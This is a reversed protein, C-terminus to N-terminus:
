KAEENVISRFAKICKYRALFLIDFICMDDWNKPIIEMINNAKGAEELIRAREFAIAALWADRSAEDANMSVEGDSNEDMYCYDNEKWWAKYAEAASKTKM